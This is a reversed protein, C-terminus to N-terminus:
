ENNSNKSTELPFHIAWPTRDHYRISSPPSPLAPLLPNAIIILPSNILSFWFRLGLVEGRVGFAHILQQHQNSIPVFASKCWWHGTPIFTVRASTFPISITTFNTTILILLIWILTWKLWKKSPSCFGNKRFSWIINYVNNSPLVTWTFEVIAWVIRCLKLQCWISKWTAYFFEFIQKGLIQCCQQLLFFSSSRM